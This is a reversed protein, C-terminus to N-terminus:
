GKFELGMRIHPKRMEGDPRWGRNRKLDWSLFTCHSIGSGSRRAGAVRGADEEVCGRGCEPVKQHLFLDPLSFCSQSPPARIRAPGQLSRDTPRPSGAPPLNWHTPPRWNQPSSHWGPRPAHNLAAPLVCFTLPGSRSWGKGRRRPFM